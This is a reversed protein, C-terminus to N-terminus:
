PPPHTTLRTLKDPNGIAYITHILGDNSDLILAAIPQDQSTVIIGPGDNLQTLQYHSRTGAPNGRRIGSRGGAGDM